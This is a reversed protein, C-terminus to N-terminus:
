DDETRNGLTAAIIGSLFLAMAAGGASVRADGAFHCFLMSFKEHRMIGMIM